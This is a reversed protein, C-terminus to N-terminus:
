GHVVEPYTLVEGGIDAILFAPSADKIAAFLRRGRTETRAELLHVRLGVVCRFDLTEPVDSAMVRLHAFHKGAFCNPERKWDSSRIRDFESDGDVVFVASPRRGARRIALLADQGTM